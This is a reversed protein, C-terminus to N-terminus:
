WGAPLIVTFKSGEGKKSEVEIGGGLNKIIGYSLFLGLGSGQGIEKTTYFPEFIKKIEDESMGIGNDNFEIKFGRGNELSTTIIIKGDGNKSGVADAANWIMNMFVQILKERVTRIEPLGEELETTLKIGNLKKDYMCLRVTDRVIDNIQVRSFNYQAPRSFDVLDRVIKSIREIHSSMVKIEGKIYSNQSKREITEALSSISALPNGIEHAVGAALIGVAALKEARSLEEEYRLKESIDKVSEIVYVVRGEKDFVPYYSVEVDFFDGGKKKNKCRRVVTSSTGAKFTEELNCEACEKEMGHFAIYCQAGKAEERSLGTLNLIFDNAMVVKYDRDLVLIGEGMSMMIRNLFDRTEKIEETKERLADTLKSKIFRWLVASLIMASILNGIWGEIFFKSVILYIAFVIFIQPM